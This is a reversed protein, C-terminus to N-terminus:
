GLNDHKYMLYGEFYLTFDSFWSIHTVTVKVQIKFDLMLDYQSM